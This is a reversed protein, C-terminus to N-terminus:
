AKVKRDIVEVSEPLEFHVQLKTWSDESYKKQVKQCTRLGWETVSIMLSSEFMFAMSGEGVKQPQLVANSAKEFSEVDPGHASMVNHLSAGAPKFGGAKADYDGSILGMFESMTNRHYWPPRFTDEQVLWRPPFIVFDAVATGVHASPATLVTYISPDPHDFSTSGIVSFRGLDYKYPYYNGHWAVVDFPTHGQEASFLAGDFKNVITWKSDAAYDRDFRAHPIQFDRPNALCNSGIPGLDPLKFHGQYLELIYGRVPGHPLTIRYKIGRPIVVIENPQVLIDGLETQIDLAGHQLVVLFDGDSSYFATKEPMSRGAAFIFIGLGSKMKSDGAGGVLKLGSLWDSAEDLEFPDWRLQNPITHLGTEHKLGGGGTEYPTFDLHSASPLVRYLWTQQNEGRPATFATGSLKEAYTGYPCKQPSNAGIPLAGRVAESRNHETLQHHCSM